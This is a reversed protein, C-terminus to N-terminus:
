VDRGLRITENLRLRDGVPKFLNSDGLVLSFTLQENGM